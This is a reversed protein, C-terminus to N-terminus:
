HTRVRVKLVGSLAHLDAEAGAKAGKAKAATRLTLEEWGDVARDRLASLEASM